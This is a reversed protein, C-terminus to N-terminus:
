ITVEPMNQNTGSGHRDVGQSGLARQTLSPNSLPFKVQEHWAGNVTPSPNLQEPIISSHDIHDQITVTKM